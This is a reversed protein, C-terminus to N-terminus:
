VEEGGHLWKINYDLDETIDGLVSRIGSLHIDQINYEKKLKKLIDGCRVVKEQIKKAVELDM